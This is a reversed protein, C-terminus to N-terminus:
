LIDDNTFKISGDRARIVSALKIWNDDPDLMLKINTWLSIPLKRIVTEPDCHRHQAQMKVGCLKTALRGRLCDCETVTVTYGTM